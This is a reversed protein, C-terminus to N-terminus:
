PLDEVVLEDWGSLPCPRRHFAKGPLELLVIEATTHVPAGPQLHGGWCRGTGDSLSCHLHLGEPGLTGVLSCIEFPGERLEERSADALRLRARTVSGVCSVMCAAKLKLAEVGEALSTYLDQGPLLRFVHIASAEPSTRDSM